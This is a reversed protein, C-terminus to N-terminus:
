MIQIAIHRVKEHGSYGSYTLETSYSTMSSVRKGKNGEQRQEGRARGEKARQIATRKERKGAKAKGHEVHEV